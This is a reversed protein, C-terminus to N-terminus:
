NKHLFKIVSKIENITEEKTRDGFNEVWNIKESSITPLERHKTLYERIKSFSPYLNYKAPNDNYKQLDIINYILSHHEIIPNLYTPNFINIASTIKNEILICPMYRFDTEYVENSNPKFLKMKIFVINHELKMKQKQQCRLQLQQQM